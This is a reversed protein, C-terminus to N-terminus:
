RARKLSTQLHMLSVDSATKESQGKIQLYRVDGPNTPQFLFGISYVGAPLDKMNVCQDDEILNLNNDAPCLAYSGSTNFRVLAEGWIEEADGNGDIIHNYIPNTSELCGDMTSQRIIWDQSVGSATAFMGNSDIFIPTSVSGLGNVGSDLLSKYPGAVLHGKDVNDAKIQAYGEPDDSDILLTGVSSAELDGYSLDKVKSLNVTANTWTGYTDVSATKVSSESSVVSSFNASAGNRTVERLYAVTPYYTGPILTYVVKGANRAASIETVTAVGYEALYVNDTISPKNWIYALSGSNVEDWDSQVQSMVETGGVYIKDPEFMVDGSAVLNGSADFASSIAAADINARGQAKEAADFDQATNTVVNNNKM